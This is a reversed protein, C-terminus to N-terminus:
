NQLSQRLLRRKHSEERIRMVEEPHTRKWLALRTFGEAEDEVTEYDWEPPWVDPELEAKLTMFYREKQLHAFRVEMCKPYWFLLKNVLILDGEM